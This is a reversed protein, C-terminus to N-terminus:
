RFEELCGKASVRMGHEEAEPAKGKAKGYNSVQFSGGFDGYVAAPEEVKRLWTMRGVLRCEEEIEARLDAALKM